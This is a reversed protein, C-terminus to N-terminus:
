HGKLYLYVLRNFVPVAHRHPLKFVPIGSLCPYSLRYVSTSKFNVSRVILLVSSLVDDVYV